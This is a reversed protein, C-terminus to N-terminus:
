KILLRVILKIVFFLIEITKLNYMKPQFPARPGFNASGQSLFFVKNSIKVVLLYIFSYKTVENIFM